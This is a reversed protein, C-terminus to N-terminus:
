PCQSIEGSRIIQPMRVLGEESVGREVVGGVRSRLLMKPLSWLRDKSSWFKKWVCSAGVLIASESFFSRNDWSKSCGRVDGAAGTRGTTLGAVLLGFSLVASLIWGANKTMYTIEHKHSPHRLSFTSQNTTYCYM